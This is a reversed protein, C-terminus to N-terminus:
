LQEDRDVSKLLPLPVASVSAVVALSGWDDIIEEVAQQFSDGPNNVLAFDASLAHMVSGITSLPLGIDSIEDAFYEGGAICELFTTLVDAWDDGNKVSASLDVAVVAIPTSLGHRVRYHSPDEPNTRVNPTPAPGSSVVHHTPHSSTPKSRGGIGLHGRNAESLRGLRQRIDDPGIESNRLPVKARTRGLLDREVDLSIHQHRAVYRDKTGTFVGRVIASSGEWRIFVAPRDKGIRGRRDPFSHPSFPIHAILLDGPLLEDRWNGTKFEPPRNAAFPFRQEGVRLLFSPDVNEITHHWPYSRVLAKIRDGQRVEWHRLFESNPQLVGWSNDAGIWAWTHDELRGVFTIERLGHAVALAAEPATAGHIHDVLVGAVESPSRRPSEDDFSNDFGSVLGEDATTTGQSRWGLFGRMTWRM